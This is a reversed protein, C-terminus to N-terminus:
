LFIVIKCIPWKKTKTLTSDKSKRSKWPRPLLQFTHKLQTTQRRVSYHYDHKNTKIYDPYLDNILCVSKFHKRFKTDQKTM